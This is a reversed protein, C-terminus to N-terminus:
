SKTETAATTDRNAALVAVSSLLSAFATVAEWSVQM